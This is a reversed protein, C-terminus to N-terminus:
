KLTNWAFTKIVDDLDTQWLEADTERYSVVIKVMEDYNQLLYIACSVPGEMGKRSYKAVM